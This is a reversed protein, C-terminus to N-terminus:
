ARPILMMGDNETVDSSFGNENMIADVTTGYRRAINWISEGKECYYITLACDKERKASDGSIEISGIYNKIVSSLTIGSVLIETKLELRSDGSVACSCATIQASGHCVIREARNNMNVSYDFDVPKQIVSSNNESDKYIVTALYTGSVICKDDKATFNYRLDTCWVALVCEVSVGISELVIKNTFATDFRGNFSLLEMSKPTKRVEYETSYTDRILNLPIEEFAVINVSIRSDIEVLRMDGSADAKVIGECSSVSLRISCVSNENIGDLEVIQSIPMSHEATEVESNNEGIYYIKVICEGKILAKNNIIKADNSVACASINMIRSVTSKGEPIEIVEGLNFSKECVGTLSAFDYESTLTQIGAGESSCLIEDDRKKVAKFCFSLMARIDIRRPNVARCNIYDTRVTVSVASDSTIKSSEIFKQVPYSQEYGSIKGNDGVYIIRVVANGDATVRGSNNQASTIGTTVTCKLIRQIEPCYDPLAIDADLSQEAVSEYVTECFGIKQTENNLNM